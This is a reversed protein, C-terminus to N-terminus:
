KFKIKDAIYDMTIAIQIDPITLRSLDTGKVAKVYPSGNISLYKFNGIYTDAAKIYSHNIAVADIDQNNLEKQLQRGYDFLISFPVTDIGHKIAARLVAAMIYEPGITITM